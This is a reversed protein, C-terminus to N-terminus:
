ELSREGLPPMVLSAALALELLYLSPASIGTETLSTVLVFTVLFLAVAVRSSRPQFYASILVFFLMSMCIAVGALGLDHYAAIWGGDIPLGHYGETSLGYGFIMQFRDRPANLVATWIPTRGTLDTLEKAHEGRALWTTLLGSSTILALSIVIGVSAFLKRVRARTTFMRLGAVLIGAVLAVLETRTHSMLLMVATALIAVLAIRWKVEGCFWLVVLIGLVVSTFDAVQVPTIPWFEGSLRGEAFARGPAVVFGLLVSGLAVFLGTLHCRVLLLDRRGWWPSLLWLTALFCGLRGTRYVTGLFHGDTPNVGAVVAEILLLTLLSLFVSPRILLRRNVSLAVLLAAILAGQTIVKGITAHIPIILPLGNWTGPYFPIVNLILLGWALYIKRRITRDHAEGQRLTPAGPRLLRIGRHSQHAIVSSTM